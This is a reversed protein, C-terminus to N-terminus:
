VATLEVDRNAFRRYSISPLTQLTAASRKQLEERLDNPIFLDHVNRQYPLLSTNHPGIPAYQHYQVKELDAGPVKWIM